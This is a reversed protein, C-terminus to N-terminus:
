REQEKARARERAARSEYCRGLLDYIVLEQERAAGRLLRNALMHIYSQALTVIPESLEGAKEAAALEAAVARMRESRESLRLLGPALPSNADNARDLLAELSAREKRFKAGLARETPVGVGLEAFLGRRAHGIVGRKQEIDLGLDDLLQDMGRLALRWREDAGADGDLLEVIGLAARSDAEFLREALGIGVGGGYREVERMYTDLVVKWIRGDALLPAMARHLSVLVEAALRAPSGHFRLRVHWDPDGYRVFFWSGAAGSALAQDVVPRLARLVHDATGTGTYLKAYLWESGPPFARPVDESAGARGGPHGAPRVGKPAPARRLFPVILEHTFRGEASRLCLEDGGPAIEQLTVDPRAKVLHVFSEISLANDLDVPLVNDRDVVAVHRPLRLEERLGQVAAFRRAGKADGLLKLKEGGVRWRELSLVLKGIVIRPRYPASSLPGWDIGLYPAGQQGLECLFRYLGISRARWNHANTLRPIVRKGRAKSRLVIERGVVSVMLDTVPIQKGRAAGSRGLFPIEHERLLPRCIVNGLRGEPLHVIEAFLADPVLAEEDRLHRVVREHLEPDTHCFRGLLTAGSPGSVNEVYLCFDGAALAEESRAGLIAMMSLSGPLEPPSPDEIGKLDEPTLAIERAGRALAGELKALLLAHRKGYPTTEEGGAGRLPVGELLPSGEGSSGYGLGSDDDLALVLPVEQKEFRHVFADRFRGLAGDSRQPAIRRLTEIAAIMEAVVKEGLTATPAPKVMDVQFLRSRAVPTPLAELAREVDLYVEPPSGIGAADLADLADRTGELRARVEDGGAHERLEAILGHIPEPGTICPALEPVLVQAAVLEDLFGRAEELTIEPAMAVLAEALSAFRAGGEAEEAHALTATLYLSPEIAVLHYSRTQGDFRAETYHLRGAATYLSSNPRYRLAGRLAPDRVLAETLAAIYEMDLRTHRQYRARPEIVLRTGEALSGVSCGSFLGFPTSRSAMRSFYRVLTREVKQGRESDPEKIWHDLRAEVGPSAIFLAERVEPREVARQLRARLRARDAALAGALLAPDKAVAPAELGEGWTMLEDFPLLPSRFAFFGAPVLGPERPENRKGPDKANAREEAV